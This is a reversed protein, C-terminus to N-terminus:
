HGAEKQTQQCDLPVCIKIQVGGLESVNARINGGHLEIISKAITLGLGSGGHDRSRTGDARYLRQFIKPLERKDISPASDEVVIVLHEHEVFATLATTGPSDTYKVSNRVVNMLSQKLRIHDGVWVAEASINIHQQFKLGRESSLGHFDRAIQTMWPQLQISKIDLQLIQAELRAIQYIDDILVDIEAIKDHLKSYTTEQDTILGYELAQLQLKLVSLPTRLEHSVDAFLQNRREISESLMAQRLNALRRKSYFVYVGILLVVFLLATVTNATQKQLKAEKLQLAGQLKQAELIKIEADKSVTKLAYKQKATRFSNIQQNRKLTEETLKKQFNFAAPYDNRLAYTQVLGALTDVTLHHSNPQQAFALVEKFIREAEDLNNQGLYAQALSKKVEYLLASNGIASLQNVADTYINVATSYDQKALYVNAINSKAWAIHREIKTAEFVNKGEQAYALSKELNGQGIYVQSLKLLSHGINIPVNLQRDLALAKQFYSEASAYDELQRYREAFAYFHDARNEPKVTEIPEYTLQELEYELAEQYLGLNAYVEALDGLAYGIEKDIGHEKAIEIAREISAVAKAYEGKSRLCYTARRLARVQNKYKKIREFAQAASEFLALAQDYEGGDKLLMGEHYDAFITYFTLQHKHAHLRVQELTDLSEQHRSLKRLIDARRILLAALSEPTDQPTNNAIKAQIQALEEDMSLAEEANGVTSALVETTYAPALMFMTFVISLLIRTLSTDKCM